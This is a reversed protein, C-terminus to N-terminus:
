ASSNRMISAVCLAMYPDIRCGCHWAMGGVPAIGLALGSFLRRILWDVLALFMDPQPLAFLPINSFFSFSPFAAINPYCTDHMCAHM